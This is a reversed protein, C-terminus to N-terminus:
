VRFLGLGWVLNVPSGGGGAGGGGGGRLGHGRSSQASQFAWCMGLSPQSAAAM